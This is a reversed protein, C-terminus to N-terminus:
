DRRNRKEVSEVFKPDRAKKFNLNLNSLIIDIEEETM